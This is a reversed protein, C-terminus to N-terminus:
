KIASQPNGISSQLTEAGGRERHQVAELCPLGALSAVLLLALVGYLLYYAEPQTARAGFGEVWHGVLWHSLSGLLGGITIWLGFARGRM